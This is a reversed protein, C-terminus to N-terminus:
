TLTIPNECSPFISLTFTYDEGYASYAPNAFVGRLTIIFDGVDTVDESYITFTLTAADYSLPSTATTLLYLFHM